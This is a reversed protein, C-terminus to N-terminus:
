LYVEYNENKIITEALYWDIMTDIDVSNKEPMVYKVNKDFNELGKNILSKVNIVYVAGNYEYYEDQEQRRLAKKNITMELFGNSNENCIVTASHSKRVSVVMDLQDNYLLIAQKVHEATRLPSTPQLLIISDFFLNKNKYFDLVHLLVDNTKATDTALEDPRKFPVKLGYQEVVQIIKEDDTTICILSDDVFQRAIDISYKILPKGALPKINKSPIGKSGGRAPIVFLSKM